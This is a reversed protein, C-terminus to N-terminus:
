AISAWRNLCDHFFRLEDDTPKRNFSAVLCNENDSVRGAGTCKIPVLKFDVVNSTTDTM